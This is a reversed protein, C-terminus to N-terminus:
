RHWAEHEDLAEGGVEHIRALLRAHGDEADALTSHHHRYETVFGNEFVQTEFTMAPRDDPLGLWLKQCFGIWVTSVWLLRGDPTLVDDEAIRRYATDEYKHAWELLELETGDKDWFRTM